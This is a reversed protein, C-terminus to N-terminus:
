YRLAKVVIRGWAWRLTIYINFFILSNYGCSRTKVSVSAAAMIAMEITVIVSFWHEECILSVTSATLLCEPVSQCYNPNYPALQSDSLAHRSAATSYKLISHQSECPSVSLFCLLVLDTYGTATYPCLFADSSGAYSALTSEGASNPRRYHNYYVAYLPRESTYFQRVSHGYPYTIIM